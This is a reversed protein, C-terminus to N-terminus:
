SFMYHNNITRVSVEVCRSRWSELNANDCNSLIEMNGVTTWCNHPEDHEPKEDYVFVSGDYDQAVFVTNTPTHHDNTFEILRLKDEESLTIYANSFLINM